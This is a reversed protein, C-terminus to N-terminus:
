FFEPCERGRRGKNQRKFVTSLIDSNGVVPNSGRIEPTPLLPKVFKAVVETWPTNKQM